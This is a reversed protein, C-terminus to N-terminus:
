ASPSETKIDPLQDMELRALMAAYRRQFIDMLLPAEEYEAYYRAAMWILIEHFRAPLDPRDGDRVLETADAYYEALLTYDANLASNFMLKKDPRLTVVTPRQAPLLGRDYLRSFCAWESYSLATEDAIGVSALCVRFAQKDWDAARVNFDALPDYLRGGAVLSVSLPRWMWSWQRQQQQLERWATQVWTVVQLMEGRQGTVTVPGSGAIGCELCVRRCIDLFTLGVVSNSPGPTVVIAM